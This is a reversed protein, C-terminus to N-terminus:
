AQCPKNRKKRLNQTRGGILPTRVGRAVESHGGGPVWCPSLM